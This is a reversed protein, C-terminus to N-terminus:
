APLGAQSKAADDLLKDAGPKGPILDLKCIGDIETVADPLVLRERAQSSLLVFGHRFFCNKKQIESISWPLQFLVIFEKM